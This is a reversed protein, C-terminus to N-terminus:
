CNGMYFFKSRHEPQMELAASVQYPGHQRMGAVQPMHPAATATIGDWYHGCSVVPGKRVVASTRGAKGRRAHLHSIEIKNSPALLHFLSSLFILRAQLYLMSFEHPTESVLHSTNQSKWRGKGLGQLYFRTHLQGGGNM